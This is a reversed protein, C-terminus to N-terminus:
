KRMQEAKREKADEINARVSQTLEFFAIIKAKFSTPYGGIEWIWPDLNSGICATLERFGQSYTIRPNVSNKLAWQEIPEGQRKVRFAIKRRM